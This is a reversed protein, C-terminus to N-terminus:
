WDAATLSVLGGALAPHSVLEPPMWPAGRFQLLMGAAAVAAIGASLV